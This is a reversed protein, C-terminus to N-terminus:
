SPDGCDRGWIGAGGRRAPDLSAFGLGFSSAGGLPTALAQPRFWQRAHRPRTPVRGRGGRGTEPPDGTTRPTARPQQDRTPPAAQKPLRLHPRRSGRSNRPAACAAPFISPGLRRVRTRRAAATVQARACCTGGTPSSWGPRLHPCTCACGTCSHRAPQRPSACRSTAADRPALPETGRLSPASGGPPDQGLRRPATQSPLM